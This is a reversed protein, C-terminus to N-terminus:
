LGLFMLPAEKKEIDVIFDDTKKIKGYQNQCTIVVHIKKSIKLLQEINKKRSEKPINSFLSYYVKDQNGGVYPFDRKEIYRTPKGEGDLLEISVRVNFAERKSENKLAILYFKDGETDEKIELERKGTIKAITIKRIIWLEFYYFLLSALLGLAISNAITMTILTITM